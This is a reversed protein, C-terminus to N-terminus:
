SLNLVLPTFIFFSSPCSPYLIDDSPFLLILVQFADRFIESALPIIVDTLSEDSPQLLVYFYIKIRPHCTMEANNKLEQVRTSHFKLRSRVPSGGDFSLIMDVVILDDNLRPGNHHFADLSACHGSWIAQPVLKIVLLSVQESEPNLLKKKQLKEGFNTCTTRKRINNSGETMNNMDRM